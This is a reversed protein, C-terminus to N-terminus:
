SRRGAAAARDTYNARPSLGRLKKKCEIVIPEGSCHLILTLESMFMEGLTAVWVIVSVERQTQALM